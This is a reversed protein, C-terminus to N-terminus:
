IYTHRQQNSCNWSIFVKNKAKVLNISISVHYMEKHEESQKRQVKRIRIWSPYVSGFTIPISHSLAVERASMLVATPRTVTTTTSATTTISTTTLSITKTTKITLVTLILLLLLLRQRTPTKLHCCWHNRGTPLLDLLAESIAIVVTCYSYDYFNYYKKGRSNGVHIDM